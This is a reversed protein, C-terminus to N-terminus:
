REALPVLVRKGGDIERGEIKRRPREEEEEKIKDEGKKERRRGIRRENM